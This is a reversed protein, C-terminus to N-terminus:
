TTGLLFLIFPSLCLRAFKEFKFSFDQLCYIPFLLAGEFSSSEPHGCIKDKTM